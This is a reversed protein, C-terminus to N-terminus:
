RLVRKRRAEHADLGQVLLFRVVAVLTAEPGNVALQAQVAEVRARTKPDLRVMVRETQKEAAVPRM